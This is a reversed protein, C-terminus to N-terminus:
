MALARGIRATLRDCMGFFEAGIGGETRPSGDDNYLWAKYQTLDFEEIARLKQQEPHESWYHFVHPPQEIFTMDLGDLEVLADDPPAKLGHRLASFRVDDPAFEIMWKMLAMPLTGGHYGPVGLDEDWGSGDFIGKLDRVRERIPPHWMLSGWHSLKNGGDGNVVYFRRFGDYLLRAITQEWIALLIPVPSATFGISGPFDWTASPCGIDKFIDFVIPQLGHQERLRLAVRDTTVAAMMTDAGLPQKGYAEVVGWVFLMLQQEAPVDNVYSSIASSSMQRFYLLSEPWVQQYLESLADM